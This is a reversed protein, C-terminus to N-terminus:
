IRNSRGSSCKKLSFCWQYIKLIDATDESKTFATEFVDSICRWYIQLIKLSRLLQKLFMVSIDETYRCYRWVEYFSNWFCWQYIKLIDATDEFKTFAREFADSIYRWCIQLIKLSRLLQKLFMAVKRISLKFNLIMTSQKLIVTTLSLKMWLKM